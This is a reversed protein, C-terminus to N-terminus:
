TRSTSAASLVKGVLAQMKSGVPLITSTPHNARQAINVAVNWDMDFVIGDIASATTQKPKYMNSFVSVVQGEALTAKHTLM